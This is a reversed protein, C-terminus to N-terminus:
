VWKGMEELRAVIEMYDFGQERAFNLLSKDRKLQNCSICVPVLNSEESLGGRAVPIIHDVHVNEPENLNNCYPCTFSEQIESRMNLAITQGQQRQRNLLAAYRASKEKKHVVKKIEPLHKIVLLNLEIKGEYDKDKELYQQHTEALGDPFEKIIVKKARNHEEDYNPFLEHYKDEYIAKLSVLSKQFEEEVMSKKWAPPRFWKYSSYDNFCAKWTKYTDTDKFVKKALDLAEKKRKEMSHSFFQHDRHHISIQELFEDFDTKGINSIPTCDFHLPYHLGIELDYDQIKRLSVSRNSDRLERLSNNEELLRDKELSLSQYTRKQLSELLEKPLPLLKEKKIKSNKPYSHTELYDREFDKMFSRFPSRRRPM